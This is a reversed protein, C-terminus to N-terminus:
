RRAQPTIPSYDLFNAAGLFAAKFTSRFITRMFRAMPPVDPNEPEPVTLFSPVASGAM